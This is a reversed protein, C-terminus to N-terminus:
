KRGRQSVLYFHIFVLVEQIKKDRMGALRLLRRAM